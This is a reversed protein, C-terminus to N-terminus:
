RFVEASPAATRQDAGVVVSSCALPLGTLRREEDRASVPMRKPLSSGSAKLNNFFWTDGL